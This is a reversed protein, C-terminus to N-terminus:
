APSASRAVHLMRALATGSTPRAQPDKELAALLALAEALFQARRVPDSTARAAEALTEFRGLDYEDREARLFYGPARTEIRGPGLAKRLQSVYVQLVKPASPPSPDGWISEVLTEASVVRGADLLLRALLARPKGKPLDVPRDDEVVEFPGLLRFDTM